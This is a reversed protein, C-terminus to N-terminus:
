DGLPQHVLLPPDTDLDRAFVIDSHERGGVQFRRQGVKKFSHARYFRAARRNHRNTGLVASRSSWAELADQLCFELLAGSVGTGHQTPDVYLKSLYFAGPAVSQLDDPPAKEALAYGIIRGGPHLRCATIRAGRSQCQVLAEVSLNAAVFDAIEEPTTHPPCALPFTAAALAAVEGLDREGCLEFTLSGKKLRPHIGGRAIVECDRRDLAIREDSMLSEVMDPRRETTRLLAQDRRWRRIKQHNGGRLVQPVELGEWQPPQTYVPYELLGERSHSEETLSEPNGVVGPILRSVGEVLALAAVEGGNLVYDGLSFEFVDVGRGRYHEVVRADMGEYRGCAVIIQPKHAMRELDRQGLPKGSPTPVALLAGPQLVADIAQKWVDPRMVMGAGGGAPTDDVSRHRGHAWGRLDHVRIDVVERHQAKGILSLDLVDFYQPFISILDFRM